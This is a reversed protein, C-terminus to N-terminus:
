RGSTPNRPWEQFVYNPKFLPDYAAPKAFPFSVIDWLGSGVRKVGQVMGWVAGSGIWVLIHPTLQAGKIWYARAQKPVEIPATVVNAVGRYLKNVPGNGAFVLSLSVTTFLILFIFFKGM